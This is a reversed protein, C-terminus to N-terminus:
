DENLVVTDFDVDEYPQSKATASFFEIKKSTITSIIDEEECESVMACQNKCDGRKGKLVSLASPDSFKCLSNKNSDANTIKSDTYETRGQIM